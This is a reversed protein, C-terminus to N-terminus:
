RDPTPTTPHPATEPWKRNTKPRGWACTRVQQRSDTHYTLEVAGNKAVIVYGPVLNQTYNM